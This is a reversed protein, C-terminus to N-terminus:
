CAHLIHKDHAQKILIVITIKILMQLYIIHINKIIFQKIHLILLKYYTSNKIIIYQKM